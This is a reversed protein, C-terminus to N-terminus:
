VNNLYQLRLVNGERVEPVVYGFFFGLEVRNGGCGLSLFRAEDAFSHRLMASLSPEEGSEMLAYDGPLGQDEVSPYSPCTETM